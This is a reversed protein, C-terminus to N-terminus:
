EKQALEITAEILKVVKSWDEPENPHNIFAIRVKVAKCVKLLAAIKEEQADHSNWCKAIHERNAVNEEKTAYCFLRGLTRITQFDDPNPHLIMMKDGGGDQGTPEITMPGPTHKSESM